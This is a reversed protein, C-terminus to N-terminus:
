KCDNPNESLKRRLATRAAERKQPNVFKIKEEILANIRNREITYEDPESTEKRYTPYLYAWLGVYLATQLGWFISVIPFPEDIPACGALEGLMGATLIFYWFVIDALFWKPGLFFNLILADLYFNFVM